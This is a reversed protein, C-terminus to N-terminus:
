WACAAFVYIATWRLLALQLERTWAIRRKCVQRTGGQM